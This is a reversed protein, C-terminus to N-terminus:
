EDPNIKLGTAILLGDRNEVTVRPLPRPPPGSLVEGTQVSFVGEHCPCELRKHEKSYFVPCALHTCKQTYAVVANEATRVLICPDKETPFRFLKVEGIPIEDLRAIPTEKFVPAKYLLSKALIWLNGVLMAFSTLTLFKTFQRRTVLREQGADISFEERWLPKLESSQPQKM